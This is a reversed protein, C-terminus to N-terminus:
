FISAIGESQHSCGQGHRRVESSGGGEEAEDDDEEDQRGESSSCSSRCVNERV